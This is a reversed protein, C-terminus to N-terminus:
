ALISITSKRLDSQQVEASQKPVADAFKAAAASFNHRSQRGNFQQQSGNFDFFTNNATSLNPQNVATANKIANNGDASYPQNQLVQELKDMVTGLLQKAATTQVKVELSVQSQAAKMTIEVNGMNEPSLKITVTKSGPITLTSIEKTLNNILQAQGGTDTTNWTLNQKVSTVSNTFDTKGTPAVNLAATQLVKSDFLIKQDSSAVPAKATMGESIVTGASVPTQVAHEPQMLDLLSTQGAKFSHEINQNPIPAAVGQEPLAPQPASLDNSSSINKDSVQVAQKSVKDALGAVLQQNNEIKGEAASSKLGSGGQMANHLAIASQMLDKESANVSTTKVQNEAQVKPLYAQKAVIPDANLTTPVATRESVTATVAKVLDETASQVQSLDVTSTQEAISQNVNSMVSPTATPKEAVVADVTKVLATTASQVKSLNATPAQEAISQGTNPMTSSAPTAIPKGAVAANVAKVLATTASQVQSLDATPAQEAISQGTNPMTSSAPTAIPKGAVMLDTNTMAPTTVTTMKGSVVDNVAKVLATTASQVQSLDVAPTQNALEQSASPMVTPTTTPVITKGTVTANVAKALATTASQVQSLDTVPAQDAIAQNVNPMAPLAPNGGSVIPNAAGISAINAPLVPDKQLQDTVSNKKAEGATMTSLNIEADASNNLKTSQIAQKAATSSAVPSNLPELKAITQQNVKGVQSESFSEKNEKFQDAPLVKETVSVTQDKNGLNPQITLGSNLVLASNAIVSDAKERKNGSGNVTTASMTKDAAPKIAPAIFSNDKAMSDSVDVQETTKSATMRKNSVASKNNEPFQKILKDATTTQESTKFKNLAKNFKAQDATVKKKKGATKSKIATTIGVHANMKEGGKM